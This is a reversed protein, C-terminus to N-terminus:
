ALSLAAAEEEACHMKQRKQTNNDFNVQAYRAYRLAPGQFLLAGAAKAFELFM